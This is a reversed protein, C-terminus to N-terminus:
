FSHQQRPFFKEYGILLVGSLLCCLPGVVFGYRIDLADTLFGVAFHMIVILASSIGVCWSLAKGISHPFLHGVLSMMLPYFPAMTLGSLVLALPHFSIGLSLLSFSLFLSTYLQKKLDLRPSWFTFLLRGAFLCVFFGATYWSSEALTAAFERRMYLAMRSSVLIECVVYFALTFAFYIQQKRQASAQFDIPVKVAVDPIEPGIFSSALVAASLFATLYFCTRWLNESPLLWAIANVILPSLISAGAYMSHLGSLIKNKQPGPELEQVVLMNQIVGMVGLSCGFIASAALFIPFYVASALLVQAGLLALISIRLVQLRSFQRVLTASM